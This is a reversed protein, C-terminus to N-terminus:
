LLAVQSQLRRGLRPVPLHYFRAGPRVKNKDSLLHCTIPLFEFTESKGQIQTANRRRNRIRNLSLYFCPNCTTNGVLGGDAGCLASVEESFYQLDTTKLFATTADNQDIFKEDTDSAVCQLNRTLGNGRGPQMSLFTNECKNNNVIDGLRPGNSYAPLSDLMTVLCM